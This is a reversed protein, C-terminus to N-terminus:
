PEVVAKFAGSAGKDLLLAFTEPVADLRVRHTIWPAAKIQGSAFLDVIMQFEPITYNSSGRLMREGGLNTLNMTVDLKKTAVNVLVGQNSLMALGQRQTEASCVSDFVYRAGAGGTHERVYAVPDVHRVDLAHGGTVERAIRLATEYIDLCFIERAGWARAIAAIGMGIPGCGIVAVDAVPGFGATRLAHLSVGLGDLLAAEHPLVEEPLVYCKEAWAPCFEAMGGPYYDMQGWGAGHGYHIMNPCLNHMGHLCNYCRQCARYPLVAVRKGLLEAGATGGAEVVRGVFEHGLVINPPNAQAVGKTHLSWPNEGLYYRLDSGCVGCAEIQLMVEDEALRFLPIDKVVLRQPAELVVAKM